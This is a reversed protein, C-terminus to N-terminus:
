QGLVQEVALVVATRDPIGGQSYVVNGEGDFVYLTPVGRLGYRSALTQGIQTMLNLRMVEARGELDAELRDVVPKAV